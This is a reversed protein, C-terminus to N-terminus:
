LDPGPHSAHVPQPLMLPLASNVASLPYTWWAPAALPASAWATPLVHRSSRGLRPANQRALTYSYNTRLDRRDLQASGDCAAVLGDPRTFGLPSSM